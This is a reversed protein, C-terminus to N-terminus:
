GNLDNDLKDKLHCINSKKLCLFLEDKLTAIKNPFDNVLFLWIVRHVGEEENAPNWGIDSVLDILRVAKGLIEDPLVDTHDEQCTQTRQTLKLVRIQTKQDYTRVNTQTWCTRTDTTNTSTGAPPTNTTPSQM